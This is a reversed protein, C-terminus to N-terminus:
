LTFYTVTVIHMVIFFVYLIKHIPHNYGIRFIGTVGAGTVFLFVILIAFLFASPLTCNGFIALFVLLELVLCILPLYRLANYKYSLLMFVIGLLGLIIWFSPYTITETIEKWDVIIGNQVRWEQHVEELSFLFFSFPYSFNQKQTQNKIIGNDNELHFYRNALKEPLLPGAYTDAYIIAPFERAKQLLTGDESIHEVSQNQANVSTFTLTALFAVLLTLTRM